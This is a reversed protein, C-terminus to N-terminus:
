CILITLMELLVQEWLEPRRWRTIKSLLKINKLAKFVRDVAAKKLKRNQDVGEGLRTIELKRVLINFSKDLKKEGILLRCSNTGIDVAAAKM